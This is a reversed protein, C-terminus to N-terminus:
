TDVAIKRVPSPDSVMAPFFPVRPGPLLPGGTDVIAADDPADLGVLVDARDAPTVEGLARALVTAGVKAGCGGCRMAIASIEKLAASDAIPSAFATSEAAMEPLASFQRM